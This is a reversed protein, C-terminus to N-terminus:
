CAKFGRSRTILDAVRVVLGCLCVYKEFESVAPRHQVDNASLWTETM